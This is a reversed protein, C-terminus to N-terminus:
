FVSYGGDVVLTDGSHYVSAPSALYVAVGAVEDPEGWRRAPIRPLVKAAYRPDSQFPDSLPTTFAGPLLANTRIGYRALEVACSRVLATLGGKSAGYHAGRVQGQVAALSAVGVLSGGAEDRAMHRAAECFTLFAGELNVQM